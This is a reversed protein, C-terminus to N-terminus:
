CRESIGIWSAPPINACSKAQQAGMAGPITVESPPGCRNVWQCRHTDPVNSKLFTDWNDIRPFLAIKGPGNYCGDPQAETQMYDRCVPVNYANHCVDHKGGATDTVEGKYIWGAPCKAGVKEMYSASPFDPKKPPKYKQLAKAILYLVLATVALVGVATFVGVILKGADAM